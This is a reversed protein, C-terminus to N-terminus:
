KLKIEAHPCESSGQGGEVPFKLDHSSELVTLSIWVEFAALILRLVTNLKIEKPIWWHIHLLYKCFKGRSLCLVRYAVLDQFRLVFNLVRYCSSLSGTVLTFCFTLCCFLLHKPYRKMTLVTLIDHM